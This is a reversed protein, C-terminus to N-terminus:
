CRRPRGLCPQPILDLPLAERFLAERRPEAPRGDVASWGESSVRRVLRLLLTGVPAGTGAFIEGDRSVLVARLPEALSNGTILLARRGSALSQRHGGGRGARSAVASLPQRARAARGEADRGRGGVIRANGAM